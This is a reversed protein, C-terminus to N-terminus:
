CRHWALAPTAPARLRSTKSSCTLPVCPHRTSVGWCSMQTRRRTMGAVHHHWVCRTNFVVGTGRLRANAAPPTSTCAVYESLLCPGLDSVVYTAPPETAGADAELDVKEGRARPTRSHRQALGRRTAAAAMKNLTTVGVEAATRSVWVRFRSGPTSVEQVNGHRDVVEKQVVGASVLVAPYVYIHDDIPSTPDAPVGMFRMSGRSASSAGKGDGGAVPAFGATPSAGAGGGPTSAAAPTGAGAGTGATGSGAGTGDGPTGQPSTPPAVVLPYRPNFVQAFPYREQLTHVLAASHTAEQLRYIFWNDREILPFSHGTFHVACYLPVLHPKAHYDASIKEELVRIEELQLKFNSALRVAEGRSHVSSSDPRRHLYGHLDAQIATEREYMERLRSNCWACLRRKCVVHTRKACSVVCRM